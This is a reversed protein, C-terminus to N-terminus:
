PTPAGSPRPGFGGGVSAFCTQMAAAIKPDTRDPKQGAAITVGEKKLCAIFAPNSAIGGARGPGVPGSNATTPATPSTPAPSSSSSSSSSPSSPSSPETVASPASGTAAGGFSQAGSANRVSVTDGSKLPTSPDTDLTITVTKGKISTITGPTGRGGGFGAGFGAAGSAGGAFASSPVGGAGNRGGRAFGTAGGAFGTLGSIGTTATSRHGYWIGASASTVVVLAIAFIATYKNTWKYSGKELVVQLDDETNPAFLDFDETSKEDGSKPIWSSSQNNM